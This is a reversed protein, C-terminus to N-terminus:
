EMEEIKVNNGMVSEYVARKYKAQIVADKQNELRLSLVALTLFFVIILIVLIEMCWIAWCFTTSLKNM